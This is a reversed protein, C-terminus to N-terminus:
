AGFDVDDGGRVSRGQVYCSIVAADHAAVMRYSEESREVGTLNLVNAGAELCARTVAPQYTEVSVLINAERLGCIVPLLKSSQETEDVRAAHALTSEAGIDVIGAGQEQMVRGRRIASEAGLCVSERYWSDPSLNIVGMVAPQSNFAFHRGGISFEKVRAQTAARNKDVLEALQELTLM